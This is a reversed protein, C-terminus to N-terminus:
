GAVPQWSALVDETTAVEIQHSFRDRYLAMLRDHGEDSSSCVADSVVITRYGRDVAGLATALLCMDTEAGTLVLAQAGGDRLMASLPTLSFASYREKDLVTAPPVLRSLAPMLDLLAPDLREGTVEPWAGYYRQWTGPMDEARRPPIFRTFITREPAHRGIAAICPLVRDMWPTPWPGESSFLRQMDICLHFTREPLPGFDLRDTM